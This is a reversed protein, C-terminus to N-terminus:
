RRYYDTLWSYIEQQTLREFELEQIKNFDTTNLDYIAFNEKSFFPAIDIPCFSKGTDLVKDNCVGIRYGSVQTEPKLSQKYGNESLRNEKLLLYYLPLSIMGSDKKTYFDISERHKEDVIKKTEYILPKVTYGKIIELNSYSSLALFITLFIPGLNNKKNWLFWISFGTLFIIFPHFTLLYVPARVGNYIRLIIAQILLIVLIILWSRNVTKNKWIFYGTSLFVAYFLYGLNQKFVLVEGFFQPWFVGLDKFFGPISRLTPGGSASFGLLNTLLKGENQFNFIILPIFTILVGLFSLIFIQLKKNNSFKGLAIIVLPIVLLGFAQYHFNISLGIALGLLLAYIVQPKKLLKVLCFLVFSVSWILPIPNLMDVSHFIPASAFAAVTALILGLKSDGLDKGIFYFLIVPILSLVTFGIWPANILGQGLLSFLVILWYYFPGFSFNGVSSPPGVLPLTQNQLSIYGIIADRAQDQSLTWRNDYNIFRLFIACLIILSLILLNRKFFKM